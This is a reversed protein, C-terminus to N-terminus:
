CRQQKTIWNTQCHLLCPIQTKPVCTICFFSMHFGGTALNTSASEAVGRVRTAARRRLTFHGFVTLVVRVEAALYSM